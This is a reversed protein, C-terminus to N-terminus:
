PTSEEEPKKQEGGKRILTALKPYSVSIPYDVAEAGNGLPVIAMTALDYPNVVGKFGPSILTTPQDQIMFLPANPSVIFRRERREEYCKLVYDRVEKENCLSWGAPPNQHASAIQGQNIFAGITVGSAVVEEPSNYLRFPDPEALKGIRKGNVMEMVMSIGVAGLMVVMFFIIAFETKSPADIVNSSPQNQM